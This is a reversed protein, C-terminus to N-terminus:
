PPTPNSSILGTNVMHAINNRAPMFNPDELLVKEYLSMAENTRGAEQQLLGLDYRPFKWTPYLTLAMAYYEEASVAHGARQEAMGANLLNYVHLNLAEALPRSMAFGIVIPLLAASVIAIPFARSDLNAPEAEPARFFQFIRRGGLWVIVVLIMLLVLTPDPVALARIAWPSLNWGAVLQKLDCVIPSTGPVFVWANNGVVGAETRYWENVTVYV